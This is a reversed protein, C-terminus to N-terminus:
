GKVLLFNCIESLSIPAWFKLTGRFRCWFPPNGAGFKTNTSSCKGVLFSNESLSFNLPLSHLLWQWSAVTFMYVSFMVRFFTLVRCPSWEGVSYFESMRQRKAASRVMNCHGIVRTMCVLAIIIVACICRCHLTGFICLTVCQCSGMSSTLLIQKKECNDSKTSEICKEGVSDYQSMHRDLPWGPEVGVWLAALSVAM